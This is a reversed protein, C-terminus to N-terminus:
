HSTSEVFYSQIKSDPPSLWTCALVTFKEISEIFSCNEIDERAIKLISLIQGLDDKTFEVNLNHAVKNRLNNLKIIGPKVFYVVKNEPLLNVKNYFNLKAKKLEKLGLEEVLYIDLYHEVILHCKLLIAIEDYSKDM